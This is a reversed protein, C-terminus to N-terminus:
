HWKIQSRINLLHTVIANAKGIESIKIVWQMSFYRRKGIMYKHILTKNTDNLHMDYVNEKVMLKVKMHIYGTMITYEMWYQDYCPLLMKVAELNKDNVKTM